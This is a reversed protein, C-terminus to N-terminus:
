ELIYINEFGDENPLVLDDYVYTITITGAQHSDFKFIIEHIDDKSYFAYITFVYTTTNNIPDIDPLVEENNKTLHATYNTVLPIKVVLKIPQADGVKLDSKALIKMRMYITSSVNFERQNQVYAWDADVGESFKVDTDLDYKPDGWWNNNGWPLFWVLFIVVLAISGFVIGVIKGM